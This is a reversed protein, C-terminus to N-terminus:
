SANLHCVQLLWIRAMDYVGVRERDENAIGFPGIQAGVAM